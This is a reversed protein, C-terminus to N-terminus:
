RVAEWTFVNRFKLGRHYEIQQGKPPTSAEVHIPRVRPCASSVAIRTFGPQLFTLQWRRCSRVPQRFLLRSEAPQAQAESRLDNLLIAESRTEPDATLDFQFQDDHTGQGEPPM